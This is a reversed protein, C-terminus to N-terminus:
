LLISLLVSLTIISVLTSVLIAATISEADAGFETALIGALVASPMSAQIIAVDRTLGSMGLLTTLPFAILPAILLRLVTVLVSFKLTGRIGSNWTRSLQIGLVALMLSDAAQATLDVSNVIPGPLDLNTANILLGLVAAYPMPNKVINFLAARSSMTGRSAFFVGITYGMLAAAILCIVARELGPTGFALRSLPLGYNGANIFILSLMFASEQRRDFGFYRALGYGIGAVLITILITVGFLHGAESASIEMFALSRFILAPAFVYVM